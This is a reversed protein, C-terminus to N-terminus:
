AGGIQARELRDAPSIIESIRIGLRDDLAM